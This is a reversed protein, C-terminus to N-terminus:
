LQMMKADKNNVFNMLRARETQVELLRNFALDRRQAMIKKDQKALELEITM